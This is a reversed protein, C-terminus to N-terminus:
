AAPYIRIVDHLVEVTWDPRREKVWKTLEDVTPYGDQGVFLRADDYLVIHNKIPSDFVAQLERMVPADEIGKGTGAGCYHGDLWFLTRNKLQAIVDKIKEGSDGQVLSVNRAGAFRRVAAEYLAQDLEISYLREFDNRLTWTTDGKFTGTEVFTRCGFRLAFERIMVRKVTYPPPVPNGKRNWTALAYREYLPSLPGFRLKRVISELAM